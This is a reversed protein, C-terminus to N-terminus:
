LCGFEKDPKEKQQLWARWLTVVLLSSPEWFRGLIDQKEEAILEAGKFHLMPGKPHTLCWSGENRGSFHGDVTLTESLLSPM